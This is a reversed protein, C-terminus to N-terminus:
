NGRKKIIKFEIQDEESYKSSLRYAEKLSHISAEDEWTGMFDYKGNKQSFIFCEHNGWKKLIKERSKENDKLKKLPLTTLISM